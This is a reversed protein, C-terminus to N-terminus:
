AARYMALAPKILKETVDQSTNIDYLNVPILKGKFALYTDDYDIHDSGSFVKGERYEIHTMVNEVKEFRSKRKSNFDHLVGILVTPESFDKDDLLIRLYIIRPNSDLRTKTMGSELLTSSKPVFFVSLRRYMWWPIHAPELGNSSRATVAYGSTRGMIFEENEQSLLGEMEKILYSVEFYLKQVFDFALKTQAVLETKKM